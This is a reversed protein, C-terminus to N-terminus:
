GAPRDTPRDTPSLPCNELDNHDFFNRDVHNGNGMNVKRHTDNVRKFSCTSQSVRRNSSVIILKYNNIVTTVFLLLLHFNYFTMLLSASGITTELVAQQFEYSVELYCYRKHMHM